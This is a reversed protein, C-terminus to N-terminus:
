FIYDLVRQVVFRQTRKENTEYICADCKWCLELRELSSIDKYTVTHWLKHTGWM